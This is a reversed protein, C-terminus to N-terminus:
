QEQLLEATPKGLLAEVVHYINNDRFQSDAPKLVECAAVMWAFRATQYEHGLSLALQWMSGVRLFQRRRDPSLGAFAQWLDHDQFADRNIGRGKSLGPRIVVCVSVIGKGGLM